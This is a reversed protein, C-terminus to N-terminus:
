GVVRGLVSGFQPAPPSTWKVEQEARLMKERDFPLHRSLEDAPNFDTPIWGPILICDLKRLHEFLEHLVVATRPCSTSRKRLAQVLALNDFAIYLCRHPRALALVMQKASIAELYYMDRPEYKSGIPWHSSRCTLPHGGVFGYGHVNHADSYGLIEDRRHRLQQPGDNRLRELAEFVYRFDNTSCHARWGGEQVIQTLRKYTPQLDCLDGRTAYRGWSLLGICGAAQKATMTPEHLLNMALDIKKRFKDLLEWQLGEVSPTWRIGVADLSSGGVAVQDSGPKVLLNLQQLRTLLGRWWEALEEEPGGAIVNDYIACVRVNGFSMVTPLETWNLAEEGAIAYTIIAQACYPAWTWGM